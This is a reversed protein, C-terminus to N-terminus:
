WRNGCGTCNPPAVRHKRALTYITSLRNEVEALRKPDHEIDGRLAQLERRAEDM